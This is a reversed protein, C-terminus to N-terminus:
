KNPCNLRDHDVDKCITCKRPGSDKKNKNKDAYRLIRKCKGKSHIDNPPHVHVDDPISCGIFNEQEDQRTQTSPQFLLSLSELKQILMDIGGESTKAVQFIDEFKNQASSMKRRMSADMSSTAKEMLLNGESDYANDQKCNKMWRKTVYHMPVENLRVSRFMRIIHHCPIGTSEFLM